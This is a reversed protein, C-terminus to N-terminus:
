ILSSFFTFRLPYNVSKVESPKLGNPRRARIKGKSSVDVRVPEIAFSPHQIEIIYSAGIPIRELIFSGDGRYCLKIYKILFLINSCIFLFTGFFLLISVVMLSYEVLQSSNKATSEQPTQWLDRSKSMIPKKFHKLPLM